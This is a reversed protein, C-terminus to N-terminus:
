LLYRRRVHHQYCFFHPFRGRIYKGESKPSEKLFNQMTQAGQLASLSPPPGLGGPYKSSAALKPAAKNPAGQAHLPSAANLEDEMQQSMNARNRNAPSQATTKKIMEDAEDAMQKMKLFETSPTRMPHLPVDSKLAFKKLPAAQM